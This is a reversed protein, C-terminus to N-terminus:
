TIVLECRSAIITLESGRDFAFRVSGLGADVGHYEYHNLAGADAGSVILPGDFTLSRVGSFLMVATGLTARNQPEPSQPEEWAPKRLTWTLRLVRVDLECSLERLEADNHLDIAGSGGDIEISPLHERLARLGVFQM